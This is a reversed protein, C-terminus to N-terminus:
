GRPLWLMELKDGSRETPFARVVRFGLREYLSRAPNAAGVQLMVPTSSSDLISRLLASGVGRNRAFDLLAVFDIWRIGDEDIVRLIGAAAGNVAIAEFGGADFRKRAAAREAEEDWGRVPELYERMTATFVKFYLEFTAPRRDIRM